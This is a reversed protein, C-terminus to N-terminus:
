NPLKKPRATRMAAKEFFLSVKQPAFLPKKEWEAFQACNPNQPIGRANFWFDVEM